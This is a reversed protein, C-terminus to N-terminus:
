RMGVGVQKWASSSLAAAAPTSSRRIHTDLSVGPQADAAPQPSGDRKLPRPSLETGSCAVEIRRADSVPVDINMDAVRVNRGVRAGAERCIRALAHELPLARSPCRLHCLRSPPGGFPRLKPRLPMYPPLAGLSCAASSAVSGAITRQGHVTQTECAGVRSVLCGVFVLVCERSLREIGCENSVCM